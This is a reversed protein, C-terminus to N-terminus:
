CQGGSCVMPATCATPASWVGCGNPDATCNRVGNGDCSAAGVSCGTPCTPGNGGTGGMDDSGGGSGGSGGGGNDVAMDGDHAGPRTVIPACGLVLALLGLPLARVLTM